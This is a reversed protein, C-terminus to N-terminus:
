FLTQAKRPDDPLVSATDDATGCLQCEMTYEQYGDEIEFTYNHEAIVHNCQKCVHTFTVTEEGTEDDEDVKRDQERPFEFSQCQACGKFNVLYAGTDLCTTGRAPTDEKLCNRCM